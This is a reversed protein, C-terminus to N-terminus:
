RTFIINSRWPAVHVMSFVASPTRAVTHKGEIKSQVSAWVATLFPDPYLIIRNQIPGTKDGATQGSNEMYVVRARWVNEMNGQYGQGMGHLFSCPM